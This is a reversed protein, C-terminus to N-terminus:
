RYSGSGAEAISQSQMAAQEIADALTGEKQVGVFRQVPRGDVFLIMTPISSVDYAGAIAPNEDVNVKSVTVGSGASEAVKELIPLQMRCPGCWPAWFDVLTVGQQIQNTFTSENLEILKHASMERGKTIELKEEANDLSCGAVCGIGIVLAAITSLRRLWNKKLKGQM